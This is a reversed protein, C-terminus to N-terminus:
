DLKKKRFWRDYNSPALIVGFNIGIYQENFSGTATTARNGYSFGFNISSLSNQSIIPIGFGLTVGNDTVQEGSYSYPLTSQYYGIRYRVKELFSSSVANELFKREPIYQFGVTLKNSALLNTTQDFSTFKTWDTTSYNFHIGLESNRLTNNKKSDNFWFNYNFGLTTATALNITGKTGVSAYLTDYVDPDGIIGYFLYEDKTARLKQAPEIVAAVTFHHNKKLSQKFFAGIEYHFSSLRISNWDVGGASSNTVQSRRENTSTGFLYSLNTGVSLTTNTMKVLNSSLGIFVQNIGGNGLYSYDLSDSGVAVRETMSYGKKAYPKLGFALGFHKKLTFAMSFHDLLATAKFQSSGNQEYFSLRSNVGLSFLPQGDGLTNYTAPNYFNLVTSDFYTITSNGIGTFIGNENGNKEGLGYSSYPSNTTLQAFSNVSFLVVLLILLNIRM